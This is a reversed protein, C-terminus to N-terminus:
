KLMSLLEEYEDVVNQFEDILQELTTSEYCLNSNKVNLVKGFFKKSETDFEVSGEYNNYKLTM